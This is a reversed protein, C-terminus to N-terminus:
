RPRTAVEDLTSVKIDTANRFGPCLRFQVAQKRGESVNNRRTNQTILLSTVRLKSKEKVRENQM